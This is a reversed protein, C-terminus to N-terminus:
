GFYREFFLKKFKEHFALKPRLILHNIVLRTLKALEKSEGM